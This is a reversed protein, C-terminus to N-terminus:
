PQKPAPVDPEAPKAAAPKAAPVPPEQAGPAPAPAEATIGTAPAPGELERCANRWEDVDYRGDALNLTTELLHNEEFFCELHAPNRKRLSALADTRITEVEAENKGRKRLASAMVPDITTDLALVHREVKCRDAEKGAIRYRASVRQTLGFGSTVIMHTLSAPVCSESQLIFCDVSSECTVDGQADKPYVKSRDIRRASLRSLVRARVSQEMREAEAAPARDGEDSCGGRCGADGALALCVVISRWTM